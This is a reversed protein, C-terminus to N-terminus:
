SSMSNNCTMINNKYDKACIELKGSDGAAFINCGTQIAAAQKMCEQTLEADSTGQCANKFNSACIGRAVDDEAFINCGTEVTRAMDICASKKADHQEQGIVPAQAVYNEVNSNKLFNYLKKFEHYTKVCALKYSEILVLPDKGNGFLLPKIYYHFNTFDTSYSGTILRYIKERTKKDLTQLHDWIMNIITDVNKPASNLSNCLLDQLPGIKAIFVDNQKLNIFSASDFGFEHHKSEVQSLDIIPPSKSSVTLLTGGLIAYILILLFSQTNNM